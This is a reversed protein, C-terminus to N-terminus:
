ESKWDFRTRFDLEVILKSDRLQRVGPLLEQSLATAPINDAAAKNAVSRCVSEFPALRLLQQGHSATLKRATLLRQVEKPLALLKLTDKVTAVSKGVKKAIREEKMRFDLM